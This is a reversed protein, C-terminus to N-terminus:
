RATAPATHENIVDTIAEPGVKVTGTFPRDMVVIIFLESFVLVSLLTTMLMQARLNRTGFFFTFGITLTAGLFLVVWLIGPVTGEAALIRSRRAQTLADLQNFIEAVLPTSNQPTASAIVTKYLSALLQHTKMSETQDEMAPWEDAVASRLYATLASRLAAAKTEDLGSSLHYIAAAAGAEKAVIGEADSYKEWVLIIAFALLVAYLVGVTAFKFGAVENNTTLKELAIFRRVLVPGLCALISTVGVLLFGSFWLPEHILFLVILRGDPYHARKRSALRYGFSDNNAIQDGRTPPECRPMETHRAAFSFEPTSLGPRDPPFVGNVSKRPAM